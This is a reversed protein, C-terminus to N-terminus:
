CLWTLLALAILLQGAPGKSRSAWRLIWAVASSNDNLLAVYKRKVDVGMGELMLWSLLRGAMQPYQNHHAESGTSQLDRGAM